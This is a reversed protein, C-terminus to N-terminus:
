RTLMRVPAPQDTFQGVRDVGAAAVLLLAGSAALFHRMITRLDAAQARNRM